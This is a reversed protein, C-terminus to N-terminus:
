KSTIYQLMQNQAEYVKNKPFYADETKDITDIAYQAQELLAKIQYAM